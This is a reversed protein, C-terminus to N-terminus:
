CISCLVGHQSGLAFGALPQLCQKTACDSLFPQLSLGTMESLFPPATRRGVSQAGARKKFLYLHLRGPCSQISGWVTLESDEAPKPILQVPRSPVSWARIWRPQRSSQSNSFQGPLSQGSAKRYFSSLVAGIRWEERCGHVECPSDADREGPLPIKRKGM